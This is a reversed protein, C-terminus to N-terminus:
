IGPAAKPRYVTHHQDGGQLETATESALSSVDVGLVCRHTRGANCPLRAAKPAACGMAASLQRNHRSGRARLLEAVGYHSSNVQGKGAVAANEISGSSASLGLVLSELPVRFSKLGSSKVFCKTM